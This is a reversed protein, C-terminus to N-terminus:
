LLVVISSECRMDWRCGVKVNVKEQCGRLLDLAAVVVGSVDEALGHAPQAVGGDIRARLAAERGRRAECQASAGGDGHVAEAHAVLYAVVVTCAISTVLAPERPGQPTCRPARM